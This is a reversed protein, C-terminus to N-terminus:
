PTPIDVDRSLEGDSTREQRSQESLLIEVDPYMIDIESEPVIDEVMYIALRATYRPRLSPDVTTPAELEPDMGPFPSPM